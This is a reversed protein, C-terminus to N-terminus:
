RMRFVMWKFPIVGLRNRSVAPYSNGYIRVKDLKKLKILLQATLDAEHEIIAQWGITEFMTIAEALTVVDVIDPSGAEVKEPIDTWYTDEMTVIDMLRRGVDTPDGLEIIDRNGVPVGIGFPAYM